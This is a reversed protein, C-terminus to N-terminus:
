KAVPHEKLDKVAEELALAAYATSLVPDSEMWRKEGAWSGDPQQTSALKQILEVRWDHKVGKADTIVPEGYAHLARAFVNYYYFLGSKAQDPKNLGMGPNQDLTWNHQIWDLCHKIKPDDKKVGCYIMSKLGAYTMSGYSRLLRKGDPSMYEGAESDGEGNTGVGYVFGGDNGAWKQDNTESNNQNRTVFKLAAQFAPDDEKLGADKLAEISFHANSLDPRSHNGYGWGGYWPNKPDSVQEGKPGKEGNGVWQLKKLFAVAHDLRDKYAPDKAAAIASVAIATNYNALADQYIGGTELQYSFLKDYGKKVFADKTSYKGTNVFSKLVIATLAPFDKQTQWGGDPQQKGKLYDTAKEIMAQGQAAPDHASAAAGPAAPADAALLVQPLPLLLSAAVAAGLFLRTPRKM